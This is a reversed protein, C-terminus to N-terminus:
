LRSSDDIKTWFREQLARKLVRFDNKKLVHPMLERLMEQFMSQAIPLYAPHQYPSDDSKKTASPGSEGVSETDQTDVEVLSSHGSDRDAGFYHSHLKEM